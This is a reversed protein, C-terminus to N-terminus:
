EGFATVLTAPSSTAASHYRRWRCAGPWPPKMAPKPNWGPTIATMTAPFRLVEDLHGAANTLSTSASPPSTPPSSRCPRLLGGTLSSATLVLSSPQQRAEISELRFILKGANVQSWSTTTVAVCLCRDKTAAVIHVQWLMFFCFIVSIILAVLNAISSAPKSNNMKELAKM